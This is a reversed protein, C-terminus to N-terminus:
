QMLEINFAMEQFFLSNESEHKLIEEKLTKAEQSDFNGNEVFTKYREHLAKLEKPFYEAGMLTKIITNIDRDLPPSNFKKSVIKNNEEILFILNKYSTSNIIHPSHTTIILQNDGEKAIKQYIELISNQWNPHLSLEPEDVLIISNKLKMMKFGLARIYLQQEGTSLDKLKINDSNLNEFIPEQKIDDSLGKFKTVLELNEFTSNIDNIAKEKIEKFSLNENEKAFELFFTQIDNSIKKIDNQFVESSTITPKYKRNIRTQAENNAILNFSDLLGDNKINIEIYDKFSPLKRNKMFFNSILELISTKGSGNIGAIVVTNLIDGDKDTFNCEFDKLIKYDSIKMKKIKM